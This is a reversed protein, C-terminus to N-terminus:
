EAGQHIRTDADRTYDLSCVSALVLIYSSSSFHKVCHQIDRASKAIKKDISGHQITYNPIYLYFHMGEALLLLVHEPFESSCRVTCRRYIRLCVARRSM